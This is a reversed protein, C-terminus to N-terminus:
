SIQADACNKLVIILVNGNYCCKWLLRKSDINKDIALALVKFVQSTRFPLPLSILRPSITWLSVFLCFLLILFSSTGAHYLTCQILCTCLYMYISRSVTSHQITERSMVRLLFFVHSNAQFVFLLSKKSPFRMWWAITTNWLVIRCRTVQSLCNTTM